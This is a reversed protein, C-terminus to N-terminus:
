EDDGLERMIRGIEEYLEGVTIRRMYGDNLYDKRFIKDRFLEQLGPHDIESLKYKVNLIYKDTMFPKTDTLMYYLVVGLGWVDNPLKSILKFIPFEKRDIM